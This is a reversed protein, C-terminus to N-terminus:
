AKSRKARSPDRPREIGLEDIKKKDVATFWYLKINSANMKQLERYRTISLCWMEYVFTLGRIIHLPYSVLVLPHTSGCAYAWYAAAPIWVSRAPIYTTFFVYDNLYSLKSYRLGM